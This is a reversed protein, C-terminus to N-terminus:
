GVNEQIFPVKILNLWTCVQYGQAQKIPAFPRIYAVSPGTVPLVKTTAILKM